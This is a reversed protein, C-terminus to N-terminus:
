KISKSLHGNICDFFKKYIADINNGFKELRIIEQRIQECEPSLIDDQEFAKKQLSIINKFIDKVAVIYAKITKTINHVKVYTQSKNFWNVISILINYRRKFWPIAMLQSKGSHLVFHVPIFLLVKFIYMVTGVFVQGSVFATLAFIGLLEM